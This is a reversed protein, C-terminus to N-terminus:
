FLRRGSILFSLFRMIPLMITSTAGTFILLLLIFHGYQELQRYIYLNRGKLFVLLLRSGDLPPIPILNFSALGLNIIIAYYLLFDLYYPVRVGLRYPLTFLFALAINSLPGAVGVMAMGNRWNKFYSPNIPVPKAWGFRRTIILALTGFLDLHALPNLTLRGEWRPTPDGLANATAAHAYEHVTLSLLIIPLTLLMTSLNAM